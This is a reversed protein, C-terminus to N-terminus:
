FYDRPFNYRFRPKVDSTFYGPSASSGEAFLGQEMSNAMELKAVVPQTSEM